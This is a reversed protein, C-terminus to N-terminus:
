KKTKSQDGDTIWQPLLEIPYPPSHGHVFCSTTHYYLQHLLTLPIYYRTHLLICISRKSGILFLLWDLPLLLNGRMIQAMHGVGYLHLYFPNLANNFSVNEAKRM